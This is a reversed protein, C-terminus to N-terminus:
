HISYMKLSMFCVYTSGFLSAIRKIIIIKNHGFQCVIFIDNQKSHNVRTEGVSKTLDNYHINYVLNRYSEIDSWCFNAYM